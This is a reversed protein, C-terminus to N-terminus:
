SKYKELEVFLTGRKVIAFMRCVLKFKVANLVVGFAKGEKVKREYYSKMERDWVIASKAAQSLDAKLRKAGMLGVRAKGKISTGSTDRFPAIGLYCAYQRATEFAKFNDTHVLTSVANALGIGKISVLLAYNCAVEPDSNIVRLMEEEVDKIEEELVDAIKRSRAHTSTQVRGKADTLFAEHEAHQKVLRKRESFLEQLRLVTNGSLRSFVLEERHLYTYYAIREADVKDNKGRVLGLSRKLHLPMYCCYDIGHKELFLRLEFGYIGTHEMGIVVKGKAIKKAKLWHLLTRFGEANNDIRQYNSEDSHKKSSDNIVVDLTKKSIDIGIFCNKKM